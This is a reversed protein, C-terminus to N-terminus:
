NAEFKICSRNCIESPWIDDSHLYCLYHFMPFVLIIANKNYDNVVWFKIGDITLMSDM